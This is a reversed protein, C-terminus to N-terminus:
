STVSSRGRLRRWTGSMRLGLDSGRGNEGSSTAATSAAVSLM